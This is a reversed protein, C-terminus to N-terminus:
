LWSYALQFDSPSPNQNLALYIGSDKLLWTCYTDKKFIKHFKCLSNPRKWVDIDNSKPGWAFNCYFHTTGWFNEHFSFDFKDGVHLTRVGLDDSNSKCHVNLLPTNQPLDSIFCETIRPNFSFGNTKLVINIFWLIILSVKTYPYYAM